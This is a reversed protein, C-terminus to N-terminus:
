SRSTNSQFLIFILGKFCGIVLAEFIMLSVRFSLPHFQYQKCLTPSNSHCCSLVRYKHLPLLYVLVYTTLNFYCQCKKWEDSLFSPEEQFHLYSKECTYRLDEHRSCATWKLTCYGVVEPGDMKGNSECSYWDYKKMGRKEGRGNM